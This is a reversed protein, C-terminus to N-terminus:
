SQDGAPASQRGVPVQFGSAEDGWLQREADQLRQADAESFRVSPRKSVVLKYAEDLRQRYKRMLYYVAVTPSRSTGTMCHLLM